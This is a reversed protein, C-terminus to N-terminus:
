EAVKLYVEAYNVTFGVKSLIEAVMYTGGHAAAPIEYCLLKDYVLSGKCDEMGVYKCEASNVYVTPPTQAVSEDNTSIKLTLTAGEPVDGVPIRITSYANKEVVEPLQANCNAWTQYTDNYTLICRRDVTMLKDYSGITTLLNWAGVNTGIAYFDSNLTKKEDAPFETDSRFYNYLAIKDAGQSFANAAIATMTTFTHRKENASSDESVRINQEICPAIEVDYGSMITVWTRVPIDTDTTTFRGTPIFLDVIDEKAWTVVDLGFDYCTQIDSAVRASIKIEHGYKEEYVKVLEDVERMFGNLIDLGEYEQGIGFLRMERQYDLEIGYTDYRNLADNILSLIFARTEDYKYNLSCEQYGPNAHHQVRRLQPNKYYFDSVLGNPKNGVLSTTLEHVDNMRFSLWPNIGIKRFYEHWLGIYDTGYVDHVLHAGLIYSTETYNVPRGLEETRHYKELYDTTIETPYVLMGESSVCMVYDTVHTGEFQLAYDVIDKETWNKNGIQQLFNTNDHNIMIGKVEYEAEAVPDYDKITKAIPMSELAAKAYDPYSLGLTSGCTNVHDEPIESPDVPVLSFNDVCYEQVLEDYPGGRVKIFHLDQELTVYFEAKIWDNNIFVRNYGGSTTESDPYYFMLQIMSIEGPNATRFYGTFKYTGPGITYSPYFSFGATASTIDAMQIYAGNEDTIHKLTQNGASWNSRLLRSSTFHGIKILDGEPLPEAISLHPDVDGGDEAAATTGMATFLQVAMVATVIASLFRKKM